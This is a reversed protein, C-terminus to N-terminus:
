QYFFYFLIGIVISSFLFASTIGFSMHRKKRTTYIVNILIFAFSLVTTAILLNMALQIDLMNWTERITKEYRADLITRKEPQARDIFALAMIIFLWSLIDAIRIFVIYTDINKKTM